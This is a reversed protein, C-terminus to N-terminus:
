LDSSKVRAKGLTNSQLRNRESTIRELEIACRRRLMKSHLYWGSATLLFLIWGVVRLEEAMGLLRFVLRAVDSSPMKIIVIIFILSLAAIPFQGKNMSAIFVDRLMHYPGIRDRGSKIDARKGSLRADGGLFTCCVKWTLAESIMVM